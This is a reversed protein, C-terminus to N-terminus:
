ARTKTKEKWLLYLGWAALTCGDRIVGGRMMEEFEELPVSRILLDHEEPDPEKQADTLGTALFVHQKQRTFGYAIWLTGLHIMSAAELGTEEKLEGRALEEPNETEMEWGGQPLELAREQITYRFQEVLWVRGRDIPLIIAADDKEVVGYIGREGNSRLIEDERVRMWHNRYVERSSLTTISRAASGQVPNM